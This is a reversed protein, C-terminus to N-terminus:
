NQHIFDILPIIPVPCIGKMVSTLSASAKGYAVSVVFILKSVWFRQFGGKLNTSGLRIFPVKLRGRKGGTVNQKTYVLCGHESGTFHVPGLQIDSEFTSGKFIHWYFEVQFEESLCPSFSGGFAHLRIWLLWVASARSAYTDIVVRQMWAWTVRIQVPLWHGGLGQGFGRPWNNKYIGSHLM